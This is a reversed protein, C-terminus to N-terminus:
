GSLNNVLRRCSDICSDVARHAILAGNEKRARSAKGEIQPPRCRQERCSHLRAPPIRGASSHTVENYDQRWAIIAGRVVAVAFAGQGVAASSPGGSASNIKPFLIAACFQRDALARAVTRRAEIRSEPAVADDLDFILVDAKARAAKLLVAPNSSPTYLFRQAPAV